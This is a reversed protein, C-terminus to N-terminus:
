PSKRRVADAELQKAELRIRHTWEYVRGFEFAVWAGLLIAIIEM